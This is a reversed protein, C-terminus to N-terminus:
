DMGLLSRVQQSVEIASPPDYNSMVIVVNGGSVELAANIGPAGGAIGLGGGLINRTGQASLVKNNQLALVFKLLDPATSYGGGASSGRAPRTYFNNVRRNSSGDRSYGSALNPTNEDAQYADTDNMGAPKFIHERVYDYYSGRTVKEIIAGLVVYGGNSYARQTGPEFALPQDAFLPLYDAIGRLRNKPTADYKAGFIDGIGSEMELLQKITVKEAAQRNPYDALHKGITDTLSLQGAEVLQMIAIRTFIKNISGLNFKTDVLNPTKYEKSALGVAKQYVPRGDQVIFVVGSFKDDAVRTTLYLDVQATLEELSLKRSRGPAVNASGSSNGSSNSSPPPESQNVRISSIGHPPEKGVQIGFTFWGDGRVAKVLVEIEFDSSRMVRAVRLGGSEKYFGMDRESNAENGGHERHFRKMLNEDGTNFAALFEGLTRGAATEPLTTEVAAKPTTQADIRGPHAAGAIFAIMAGVALRNILQFRTRMPFL